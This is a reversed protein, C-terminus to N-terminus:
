SATEAKLHRLASNRGPAGSIDGGPHASAGCLFYGKPGFFYHAMGNVPRVTLLQDTVLEGHHWHGGPAGTEAEIDVPTLVEHRIIQDRLSPAYASVTEIVRDRLHDRAADDWGGKLHYPAYQVIISLTARDAPAGLMASPSTIELIPHDPLRGYKAANFATEIQEVCPAIILRGKLQAQSLGSFEPLSKLVLNVKATVGKARFHRVRRVAETDYHEVGALQMTALPGLSSFVATAALTEGSELTVGKVVDGEVLLSSAAAGTRIEGGHRKVCRALEDAIMGMGKAPVKADASVGYRYMLSFVTGPSRPGAWAGWISDAAFGGALPGDEMEDLILDYSNSLVIRLFERMERKGLMRVGLGLKAFSGLEALGELGLGKSLDPPPKLALPGLLKAFRELRSRLMRYAYTRPHARGDVYNAGKSTVCVHQGDPCLYTTPVPRLKLANKLGLEKLVTPNLNYALHALRPISVGDEDLTTKAMGGLEREKELVLVSKGQKAVTAACVLGNHGAGIVIADYSSISM